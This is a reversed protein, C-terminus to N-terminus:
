PQHYRIRPMDSEEEEEEEDDQPTDEVEGSDTSKRTGPVSPEGESRCQFAPSSAGYAHHMVSHSQHLVSM